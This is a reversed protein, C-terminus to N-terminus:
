FRIEGRARIEDRAVPPLHDDLALAEREYPQIRASPSRGATKAHRANAASLDRAVIRLLAARNRQVASDSWDRADRSMRSLIRSAPQRRWGGTLSYCSSRLPIAAFRGNRRM